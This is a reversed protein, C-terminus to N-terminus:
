GTDLIDLWFPEPCSREDTRPIYRNLSHNDRYLSNQHEAIVHSMYLWMIFQPFVSSRGYPTVSDCCASSTVAPYSAQSVIHFGDSVQDSRDALTLFDRLFLRQIMTLITVTSLRFCTSMGSGFPVSDPHLPQEYMTDSPCMTGPRSIAGLVKM